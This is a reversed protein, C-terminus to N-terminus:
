IIREGIKQGLKVPTEIGAMTNNFYEKLIDVTNKKFLLLVTSGGYLFTGKEEGKRVQAKGHHNKIKGVLLAGVEMQVVNGFSETELVTYERCNTVFVPYKQLAIPRVTHLRGKIFINDGKQANDVYCYRHYDSVQLRIVVCVGGNYDDALEKDCLLECLTYASQKVPLVTGGNINYVSLLGDCVSIVANEDSCVPRLEPKIKRSFCENFNNFGSNEYDNIDIGNKRIFRSALPKSFRTDLFAGAAKSVFPATLLKLIMRGAATDYLFRLSKSNAKGSM